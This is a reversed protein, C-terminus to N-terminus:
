PPEGSLRLSVFTCWPMPYLLPTSRAAEHRLGKTALFAAPEEVAEGLAALCSQKAYRQVM